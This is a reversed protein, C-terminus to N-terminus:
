GQIRYEAQTGIFNPTSIIYYITQYLDTPGEPTRFTQTAMGLQTPHSPWQEYTYYTTLKIVTLYVFACVNCEIKYISMPRIYVYIESILECESYRDLKEIIMTYEEQM